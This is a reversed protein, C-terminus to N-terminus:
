ASPQQGFKGKWRGPLLEDIEAAPHTQVRILTDTLYRTPNVGHLTCTAILSCLVALNDGAEEHGVFLYNKRGLAIVRLLRESIMNHPEIRVDDLFLTLPEWQNLFYRIAGGMPSKPTHDDKHQECWAKITEMAPRARAQRMELHQPEGVVGDRAADREVRFVEDLHEIMKKADPDDIDVFKRRAHANCGGRLRRGPTTVNNYGTYGDVVIVGESDGLVREPTQGSRDASYCYVIVTETAFTWIFGLKEVKQMKLSTEDAYVVPQTPVIALMRDYIPKLLDAARHFLDVLTSRGLHIGERGLAKVQRYLPVCDACKQVVLHGIFGPGYQGGDVARPPAPARVIHNCETCRLTERMHLKRVLRGPVWDYETSVDRALEVFSKGGCEACCSRTEDPVQHQVVEAPLAERAARHKEREAQADADNKPRPAPANSPKRKSRESTRGIAKKKQEAAQRELANLREQMAALQAKTDALETRLGVTEARLGDAEAQFSCEHPKAM